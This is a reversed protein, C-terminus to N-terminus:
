SDYSILRNVKGKYCILKRTTLDLYLNFLYAPLLMTLTVPQFSCLSVSVTDQPVPLVFCKQVRLLSQWFLIFSPFLEGHISFPSMTCDDLTSFSHLALSKKLFIAEPLNVMRQTEMNILIPLVFHINCTFSFHIYLQSPVPPHSTSISSISPSIASVILISQICKHLISLIIIKKFFTFLTSLFFLFNDHILISKYFSIFSSM